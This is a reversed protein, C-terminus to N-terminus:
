DDFCWFCVYLSLFYCLWILASQFIFLSPSKVTKISKLGTGFNLLMNGFKGKFITRIKNRLLLLTTIFLFFISILIYLLAQNMLLKKSLPELIYKSTMGALENFQVALSIFFILLMLLLDVIRETVVTGLSIAFPIKEYRTAVGCRSLEGGGRPVVYSVVYGIMVAAFSNKFSISQGLPQLMSNWRWARIIHSLISIIISFTVIYYNANKFSQKTTQIESEPINHISLWVLSIGISGFFILQLTSKLKSNM